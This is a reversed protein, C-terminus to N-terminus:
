QSESQERTSRALNPPYAHLNPYAQPCNSSVWETQDDDDHEIQSHQKAARYKLLYGVPEGNWHSPTLPTWVVSLDSSSLPEAYVNQPPTEPDTQHTEFPKAPDSPAGRGRVNEAILRLQYKTYPRLGEVMFARAKPASTNFVTTYISSSGVRAEVIWRRIFSHGDFGPVFQLQASRSGIDTVTLSSPRGPLELIM